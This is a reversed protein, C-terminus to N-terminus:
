LGSTMLLDIDTCRMDFRKGLYPNTLCGRFTYVGHRLGPKRLIFHEFSREGDAKLLMPVLINSVAISATRGVRSALNPVCYHIVDHKRFTPRELSTLESTAFCGGQDISVDIIVSGPRMARVMDESVVVPARGHEAHIAGIAVEATLLERRLYHPNIASTYLQRGVSTQLRMLKNINDDFIRVEAGMGLAARTAYEAVVGGGLIVVKASPVGSVGGLLVGPGGQTSSLLEAATQIASIGAMESMIRVIPFIGDDDQLYEMALAVIRKNKLRYLYEASITPLQLPSILVTGPQMMEIEDLTPPAVKLIIRAKEYVEKASYAIEGGEESYSHDDFNSLKGAGTELLVRHGRSTLNAVGSPVLAVRKEQLTTERPIGIFLSEQKHQIALTDTQTQGYGSTLEEPLSVKKKDKSSM